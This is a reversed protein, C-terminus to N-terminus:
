DKPDSRRRRQKGSLDSLQNVATNVDAVPDGTNRDKKRTKTNEERLIRRNEAEITARMRDNIADREAEADDRQTKYKNAFYISIVIVILELVCIALM